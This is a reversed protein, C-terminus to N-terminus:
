RFTLRYLTITKSNNKGSCWVLEKPSIPILDSNSGFPYPIPTPRLLYDGDTNIICLEFQAPEWNTDFQNGPGFAVAYSDKGLRHASIRDEHVIPTVRLYKKQLINGRQDMKLFLPDVYTNVGINPHELTGLIAILNDGPTDMFHLLGAANSSQCAEYAVTDEKPPWNVFKTRRTRNFVQLGYPYADGITMTWFDGNPMAAVQVTSSHSATWFHGADPKRQGAPSVVAFMDGNHVDRPQGAQALNRLIETYIGFDTGNFALRARMRGEFWAQGPGHGEGGIIHVTNTVNGSASLTIFYLTNPYKPLYDNNVEKSALVAMRGDPLVYLDSLQYGTLEIAEGIRKGLKDVKLIILDENAQFGLVVTGQPGQRLLYDANILRPINMTYPALNIETQTVDFNAYQSPQAYASMGSVPLRAPAISAHRALAAQLGVFADLSKPYGPDAQDAAVDYRVYQDGKFAYMKGNPMVAAADISSFTLGPWTQESIARPYGEDSSEDARTFRLYQNGGFFYAKGNPWSVAADFTQMTLKTWGAAVERPYGPDVCHKGRDFRAYVGDSFLYVKGNAYDLIADIHTFTIGPFAEALTMQRIIRDNTNDYAVVLNGKTFYIVDKNWALAADILRHQAQAFLALCFLLMLLPSKMPHSIISDFSRFFPQMLHGPPMQASFGQM